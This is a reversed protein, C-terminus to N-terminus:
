IIGQQALELTETAVKPSDGSFQPGTWKVPIVGNLTWTAITSQGDYSLATIEATSPQFQRRAVDTVWKVINASSPNVPRTLKINTWKLRGKPVQHVFYPNGGEELQEVEVEVGLGDCSTYLGLDISHDLILRFCTSIAADLDPDYTTTSM